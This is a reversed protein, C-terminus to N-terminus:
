TLTNFNSSPMVPTTGFSLTNSTTRYLSSYKTTVTTLEPPYADGYVLKFEVNFSTSSPLKFEPFFCILDQTLQVNASILIAYNNFTSNPLRRTCSTDVISSAASVTLPTAGAICKCAISDALILTNTYSAFPDNSGTWGSTALFEALLSYGNTQPGFAINANSLTFSLETTGGTGVNNSLTALTASSALALAPM